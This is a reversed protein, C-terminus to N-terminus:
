TLMRKREVLGQNFDREAGEYKAQALRAVKGMSRYPRNAELFTILEKIAKPTDAKAINSKVTQIVQQKTM